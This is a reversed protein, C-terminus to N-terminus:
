LRGSYRLPVRGDKGPRGLARVGQVLLQEQTDRVSVSGNFNYAGEPTLLATGDLQLPGGEDKVLAKIGEDATSLQAVYEGLSQLVPSTVTARLWRVTGQASQLTQGMLEASELQLDFQGALDVPMNFLASLQAADLRMDVDSLEIGGDPRLGIQTQGAANAGDLKFDLKLQGLLVSWPKLQWRVRELNNGDIQLVKAQGSWATGSLGAARVNPAKDSIMAFAREAPFTALLFGAYAILGLVVFGVKRIM